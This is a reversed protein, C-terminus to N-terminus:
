DHDSEEDTIDKLVHVKDGESLITFGQVIVTDGEQLGETVVAGYGDRQGIAIPQRVARSNVSKWVFLKGDKSNIIENPFCIVDRLTDTHAYAVVWDKLDFLREVYVQVRYMGTELSIEDAISSISGPVEGGDVYFLMDQGVHIKERTERSVHGEFVHESVQWSTVKTYFPVDRRSVRSVVVPKGKTEWESFTSIIAKQREEKIVQQKWVVLFVTGILCFLYVWNRKKNM